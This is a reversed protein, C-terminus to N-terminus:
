RHGKDRDVQRFSYMGCLRGVIGDTVSARGVIQIRCVKDINQEALDKTDSEM